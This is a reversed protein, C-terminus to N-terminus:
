QVLAKLVVRKQVDLLGPALITKIIKVQNHSQNHSQQFKDGTKPVLLEAAFSGQTTNFIEVCSELQSIDTQTLPKSDAKKLNIYTTLLQQLNNMNGLSALMAIRSHEQAGTLATYLSPQDAFWKALNREQEPIQTAKLEQISQRAITLDSTLRKNSMIESDLKTSIDQKAEILELKEASVKEINSKHTNISRHADTLQQNATILKQESESLQNVTQELQANLHTKETELTQIQETLKEIDEKSIEHDLSIEMTEANTLLKLADAIKDPSSFTLTLQDPQLPM